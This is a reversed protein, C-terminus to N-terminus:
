KNLGLEKLGNEWPLCWIKDIKQEIKDRSLLYAQANSFDRVLSQYTNMMSKDLKSIDDTSKIEVLARPMLFHEFCDGYEFTGPLIDNDLNKKLARVVGL